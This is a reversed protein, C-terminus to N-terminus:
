LFYIAIDGSWREFAFVRHFFHSTWVITSSTTASSALVIVISFEVTSSSAQVSSQASVVSTLTTISKGFTPTMEVASTLSSSQSTHERYTSPHTSVSSSLISSSTQPSSSAGSITGSPAISLAIYGYLGASTSGCSDSQYGPCPDDCLDTQKLDSPAYNSCWCDSGLVIAFAYSSQCKVQCSGDSNFENYVAHFQM